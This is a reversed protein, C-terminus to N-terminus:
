DGKPNIEKEVRGIEDQLKSWLDITEASAEIREFALCFDIHNLTNSALVSDMKNSIVTRVSAIADALPLPLMDNGNISYGLVTHCAADFKKYTSVFDCVEGITAPKKNGADRFYIRGAGVMEYGRDLLSRLDTHYSYSDKNYDGYYGNPMSAMKEKLNSM